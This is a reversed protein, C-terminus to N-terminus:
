PGEQWYKDLDEAQFWHPVITESRYPGVIYKGDTREQIIYHYGNGEPEGPKRRPEICLVDIGAIAPQGNLTGPLFNGSGMMCFTDHLRQIGPIKPWNEKPIEDINWLNTTKLFGFQEDTLKTQKVGM